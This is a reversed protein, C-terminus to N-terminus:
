IRRMNGFDKGLSANVEYTGFRTEAFINRAELLKSQDQKAYDLIVSDHMLYCVRTKTNKFFERLRFAQEICTDSSTSQVIYNLARRDDTEIKRKFPTRVHTKDYYMDKVTGRNYLGELLRDRSEPNYLWAFTRKKIEERTLSEDAAHLLNWEHIDGSPQEKGSLALLTRLEAANFDFEVFLDNSPKLLHRKEKKLTLIPIQSKANSLRGTKTGFINYNTRKLSGDYINLSSNMEETLIHAKKLIDHHLPCANTEFANEIIASRMKLFDDLFSDPIYDYICSTEIDCRSATVSRMIASVRATIREWASSMHSPCASDILGETYLYAYDVDGRDCLHSSHKWTKNLNADSVYDTLIGNAYMKKCTQNNDVIQFYM